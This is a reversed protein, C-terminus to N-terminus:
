FRTLFSVMIVNTEYEVLKKYSVNSLEFFNPTTPNPSEWKRDSTDGRLVNRSYITYKLVRSLPDINFPKKTKNFTKNPFPPPMKPGHCLTDGGTAPRTIIGRVPLLSSCRPASNRAFGQQKLCLVSSM